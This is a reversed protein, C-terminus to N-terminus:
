GQDNVLRRVDALDEAKDIDFAALGQRTVVISASIGIREGLRAVADALTLKGRLYSWLTGLGLRAAIRWPRKRDAEVQRWTEIAARGNAHAIHFLNCTKWEGDAFRLWTRRAGPMAAEVDSRRVALLAVDASAPTGELLERVWGSELLAHDSTTVILPAGLAELGRAVSGSPGTDPAIVEAGLSRALAVVQPDDALIAIRGIGAQKLAEHV